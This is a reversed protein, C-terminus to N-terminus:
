EMSLSAVLSLYGNVAMCVGPCFIDEDSIKDSKDTCADKIRLALLVLGWFLTRPFRLTPRVILRMYRNM